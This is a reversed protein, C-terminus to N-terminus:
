ELFLVLYSDLPSGTNDNRAVTIVRSERANPSGPWVTVLAGPKVDASLPVTVASSSLVESSDPGRVLRQEDRVEAPLDRGPPDAWTEGMGGSGLLDRITVTHPYFFSPWSM